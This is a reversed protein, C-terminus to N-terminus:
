CMQWAKHECNHKLSLWEASDTAHCTNSHSTSAKIDVCVCVGDNKYM